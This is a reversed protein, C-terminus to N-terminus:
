FGKKIFYNVRLGFKTKNISLKKEQNLMRAIHKDRDGINQMRKIETRISHWEM